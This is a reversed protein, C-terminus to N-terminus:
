YLNRIFRNRIFFAHISVFDRQNGHTISDMSPDLFDELPSNGEKVVFCQDRLRDVDKQSMRWNRTKGNKGHLALTFEHNFDKLAEHPTNGRHLIVFVGM